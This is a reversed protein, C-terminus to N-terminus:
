RRLSQDLSATESSREREGEKVVILKGKKIEIVSDFRIKKQRTKKTRIRRGSFRVMKQGRMRGRMRLPSRSKVSSKSKNKSPSTGRENAVTKEPSDIVYNKTYKSNISESPYTGEQSFGLAKKSDKRTFLDDYDGELYLELLKQSNTKEKKKRPKDRTEKNNFRDLENELMQFVVSNSKNDKLDDFNLKKAMKKETANKMLFKKKVNGFDRAKHLKMYYNRKHTRRDNGRFIKGWIKGKIENKEEKKLAEYQGWDLTLRKKDLLSARQRAKTASYVLFQDDNKEYADVPLYQMEFKRAGRSLERGFKARYFASDTEAKTGTHVVSGSKKLISGLKPDGRNALIQPKRAGPLGRPGPLHYGHDLNIEADEEEAKIPSEFKVLQKKGSDSMDRYSHPLLSGEDGNSRQSSVSMDYNRFIKPSKFPFMIRFHDYRRDMMKRIVAENLRSRNVVMGSYKADSSQNLLTQHRAQTRGRRAAQSNAPLSGMRRARNKLFAKPVQTNQSPQKTSSKKKNSKQNKTLKLNFNGRLKLNLNKHRAPQDVTGGAAAGKNRLKPMRLNHYDRKKVSNRRNNSLENKSNNKQFSYQSAQSPGKGM